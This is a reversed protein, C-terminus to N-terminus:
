EGSGAFAIAVSTEGRNVGTIANAKELWSALLQQL